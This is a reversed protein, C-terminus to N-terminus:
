KKKLTAVNHQGPGGFGFERAENLKRSYEVDNRHDAYRQDSNSSQVVYHIVFTFFGLGFVMFALTLADEM